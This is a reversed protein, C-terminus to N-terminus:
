AKKCARRSLTQRLLMLVAAEDAPLKRVETTLKQEAQRGLQEVLTGDLYSEPVVPHVYCRRSIGPTNRVKGSFTQVHGLFLKGISDVFAGLNGDSAIIVM